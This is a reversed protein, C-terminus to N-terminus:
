QRKCVIVDKSEEDLKKIKELPVYYYTFSKSDESMTLIGANVEKEVLNTSLFYIKEGYAIGVVLVTREPMKTTTVTLSWNAGVQYDTNNYGKLTYFGMYTYEESGKEIKFINDKMQWTGTWNMTPTKAGNTLVVGKKKGATYNGVTPGNDGDKCYLNEKKGDDKMVMIGTGKESTTQEAFHIQEYTYKIMNGQRQGKIFMVYSGFESMYVGQINNGTNPILLMIGKDYNRYYGAWDAGGINVDEKYMPMPELQLFPQAMTHDFMFFAAAVILVFIKKM